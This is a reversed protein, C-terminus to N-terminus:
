ISILGSNYRKVTLNCIHPDCHGSWIGEYRQAPCKVCKGEYSCGICEQAAPISKVTKNIYGWCKLFSNELLNIHIDPLSSCPIMDGLPTVVFASLGASCPLGFVQKNTSNGGPAPATNNSIFGTKGDIKNRLLQLQVIEDNSLGLINEEGSRPAILNYSVLPKIGLSKLYLYMAEFDDKMYKSATIAVNLPLLYKKILQITNSVKDFAPVETVRYYRENNSGYLTIQISDPKHSSLFDAIEETFALGNTNISIFVGKNYLHLYLEKFDKRLLCEGGTLLAFLMGADYADDMIAKWQETSLEGKALVSNDATHIYCMKCNLNCRSTLEFAGSLPICNERANKRIDSMASSTFVSGM